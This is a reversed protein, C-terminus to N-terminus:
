ERLRGRLRETRVGCIFYLKMYLIIEYIIYLKMYLLIEYFIIEYIIELTGGSIDSFAVNLM